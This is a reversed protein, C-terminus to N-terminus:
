GESEETGDINKLEGNEEMDNLFGVAIGLIEGLCGSRIGVNMMVIGRLTEYRSYKRPTM